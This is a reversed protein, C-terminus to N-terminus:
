LGLGAEENYLGKILKIDDATTVKINNYDGTIVHVPHGVWEVLGAEDTCYYNKLKAQEHANKLINFQFTQPTQVQWLDERALTTLVKNNQVRKITDKVPVATICAGYKEASRISEMIIKNSVLPRVGDHVIVIDIKSNISMLGNYVSDQRQEGGVIIQFREKFGDLVQLISEIRDIEEPAAVVIGRSIDEISLFKQLTIAIIPQGNIEHYQKPLKSAFREGRGAVPIIACINM